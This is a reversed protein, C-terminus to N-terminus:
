HDMLPMWFEYTAGAPQAHRHYLKVPKWQDFLAGIITGAQVPGAVFLHIETFEETDFDRRVGRLQQILEDRDQDSNIGDFHIEHIPIAMGKSRLFRDVDPKISATNHLLSVALAIPRESTIGSYANRLESPLASPPIRRNLEKLERNQKRVRLWTFISLVFTFIGLLNAANGIYFWTLNVDM